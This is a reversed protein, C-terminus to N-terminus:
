SDLPVALKRVQFKRQCVERAIAQARALPTVTVPKPCVSFSSMLRCHEMTFHPEEISGILPFGFMDREIM